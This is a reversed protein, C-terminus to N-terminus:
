TLMDDHILDSISYNSIPHLSELLIHANSRRKGANGELAYFQQLAIAGDLNSMTCGMYSGEEIGGCM